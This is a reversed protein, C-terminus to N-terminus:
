ALKFWGIVRDDHVRVAFLAKGLITGHSKMNCLVEVAGLLVNGERKTHEPTNDWGAVYLKYGCRCKGEHANRYELARQGLKERDGIKTM